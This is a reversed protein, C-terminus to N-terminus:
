KCIIWNSRPRHWFPKYYIIGDSILAAAYSFSSPSIVLIDASVLGMFSDIIDEDLHFIVNEGTLEQFREIHGQSYIHFCLEKEVKGEYKERIGNMINLYYSNPTNARDGALGADCSNEKRIHVAINIKDNKYFDRDKNEWFCDKIFQMADSKCYNDINSEFYKIIVSGYDIYEIDMENTINIIKSKLNIFNELKYLYDNNKIHEVIDFPRYAYQLNNCSCFIYTEIIRQYQSGFGDYPINANYYKM